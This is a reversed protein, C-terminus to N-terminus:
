ACTAEGHHIRRPCFEYAREMIRHAEPRFCYTQADRALYRLLVTQARPGIAIARPKGLHQTKHSEPQYTWVDGSRDVDCPRLICIEIPRAGTLRQFRLMDEVIPPCYPLTQEVVSNEIPEVERSKRAESRGQRLGSVTGLAHSSEAPILEESVAWRFMRQIIKVYGNVVNRTLGDEVMAVRVAKLKKPTFEEAPLKGYLRKAYRLAYKIRNIETTPKGGKVYYTEAYQLYALMVAALSIVTPEVEAVPPLKRGNQLWEALYRDYAERSEDTDYKGLYVDRGSLTVV